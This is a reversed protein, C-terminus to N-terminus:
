MIEFRDADSSVPFKKRFTSLDELSLSITKVEELHNEAKWLLDGKPSVLMSNGSYPIDKGDKGIRNVGAVYCQNEIARAYILKEWASVRAEPWNAVYFLLDFNEVNRSWVPFRLDYCILPCIKWGKLAVILKSKGSTFHENENAMRFLHKKDYWEFTGNPRMWILRNYYSIGEKVILSGTVVARKEKAVETMWQITEGDMVEALKRSNMSFGTNFMEPLIILDTTGIKDLLNSLYVRNADPDEWHLNTQLLTINLDLM